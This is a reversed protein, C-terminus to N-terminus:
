WQVEFSGVQLPYTIPYASKPGLFNLLIRILFPDLRWTCKGVKKADAGSLMMDRVSKGPTSHSDRHSSDCCEMGARCMHAPLM